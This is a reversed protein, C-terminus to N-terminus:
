FKIETSFADSMENELEYDILSDYDLNLEKFKGRLLSEFDKCKKVIEEKVSKIHEDYSKVIHSLVEESYGSTTAHSSQHTTTHGTAASGTHTAGTTTGGTSRNAGAASYYTGSYGYGFLRNLYTEDSETQPGDVSYNYTTKTGLKFQEKCGITKIIDEGMGIAHDVDEVILYESPSHAQYGGNGFNCCVIDTKQVIKIVDTFPEARYCNDTFGWRKTIPGLYEDYFRRSFLRTGSCKWAARLLDPSDWGVVFAVDDFFKVDLKESGGMGVEEEVFFAAKIVDCKEMLCLSIYVGLKDDAGIGQGDVYVKHKFVNKDTTSQLVMTQLPLEAGALIYPDAKSQVTDMHSTVCPYFEGEAPKGKTLYVNNKEDLYYDIGHKRAWLIIFTSMRYEKHSHSPIQMVEYLLPINVNKLGLKLLNDRIQREGVHTPAADETKKEEQKSQNEEKPKSDEAAKEEQKPQKEETPKEEAKAQEATQQNDEHAEATNDKVMGETDSEDLKLTQGVKANEQKSEAVSTTSSKEADIKSTTM